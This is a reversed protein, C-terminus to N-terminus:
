LLNLCANEFHTSDSPNICVGEMGISKAGQINALSDDFFLSEEPRMEMADLVHAYIEPNPKRMDLDFSFWLKEMLAFMSECEPRWVKEHITNTNSLLIVRYKESLRRVYELRNPIPGLLLANWAADLAVDDCESDLAARLQDRFPADGLKGMEFDHFVQAEPSLPQANPGALKALAKATLDVDIAYLVGGLDLVINRLGEVQPFDM